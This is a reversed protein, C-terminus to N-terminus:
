QKKRKNYYNKWATAFAVRIIKKENWDKHSNRLSSKIAHMAKESYGPPAKESLVNNKIENKVNCKCAGKCSNCVVSKESMHFKEPSGSDGKIYPAIKDLIPEYDRELRKREDGRLQVNNLVDNLRDYTDKLKKFSRDANDNDAEIDAIADLVDAMTDSLYNGVHDDTSDMPEPPEDYDGRYRAATINDMEGSGNTEILVENILRRLYIETQINM